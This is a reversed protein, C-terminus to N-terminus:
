VKPILNRSLPGLFEQHHYTFRQSQFIHCNRLLFAEINDGFVEGCEECYPFVNTMQVESEPCERTLKPILAWGVSASQSKRVIAKRM